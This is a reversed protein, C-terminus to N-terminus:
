VITESCKKCVNVAESFSSDWSQLERFYYAWLHLYCPGESINTGTALSCPTDGVVKM